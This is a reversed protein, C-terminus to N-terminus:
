AVEALYAREAQRVEKSPVGVNGSGCMAVLHRADSPARVGMRPADKVHDLQLVALLYPSHPVGWQDRCVHEPDLRFLFCMRDRRLVYERLESTVPDRKM